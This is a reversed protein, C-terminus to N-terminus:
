LNLCVSYPQVYFAWEPKMCDTQMVPNALDECSRAKKFDVGKWISTLLTEVCCVMAIISLLSMSLSLVDLFILNHCKQACARGPTLGTSHCFVHSKTQM